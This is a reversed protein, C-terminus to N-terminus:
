LWGKHKMFKVLKSKTLAYEDDGDGELTALRDALASTATRLAANEEELTTLRKKLTAIEGQYELKNGSLTKEFHQIVAEVYSRVKIDSVNLALQEHLKPKRKPAAKKYSPM